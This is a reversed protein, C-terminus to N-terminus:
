WSQVSDAAVIEDLLKKYDPEAKTLDVVVVLNAPDSQQRAIIQRAFDDDPRTLIHLIRRM